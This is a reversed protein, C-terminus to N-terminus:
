INKKILTDRVLQAQQYRIALFASDFDSRAETVSATRKREEVCIAELNKKRM